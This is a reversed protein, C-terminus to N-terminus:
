RRTGLLSQDPSAASRRGPAAAPPSGSQSPEVALHPGAGVRRTLAFAIIRTASDFGLRDCPSVIPSEGARRSLMNEPLRQPRLDVYSDQDPCICEGIHIHSDRLREKEDLGKTTISLVTFWRKGRERKPSAALVYMPRTKGEARYWWIDEKRTNREVVRVTDLHLDVFYAVQGAAPMEAKSVGALRDTM